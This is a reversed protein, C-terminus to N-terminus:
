VVDNIQKLRKSQLRTMIPEIVPEDSEYDDYEDANSIRTSSLVDVAESAKRKSKNTSTM